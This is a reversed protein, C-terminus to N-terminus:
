LIIKTDLIVNEVVKNNLIRLLNKYASQAIKEEPQIVKYINHEVLNSGKFDEFGGVPIRSMNNTFLSELVGYIFFNTSMFISDFEIKHKQIIENMKEFSDRDDFIDFIIRREDVEMNNDTLCKKFGSLRREVTYDHDSGALFLPRSASNKLLNDTLKYAAKDNDIIVYPYRNGAVLRDFCIIKYSYDSRKLSETYSVPAILIGDVRKSALIDLTNDEKSLSEETICVILSYEDTVSLNEVMKILRVYFDNAIDPVVIAITKTIGTKLSRANYNPIYHMEEATRLVAKITEEKYSKDELKDNLINSVTTRSLNLKNAIDKMSPM